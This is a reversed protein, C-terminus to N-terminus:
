RGFNLTVTSNDMVVTSAPPNCSAVTLNVTVGDCGGGQAKSAMVNLPYLGVAKLAAVAATSDLGVMNAPVTAM